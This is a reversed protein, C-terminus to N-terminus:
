EHQAGAKEPRSRTPGTSYNADIHPRGVIESARDANVRQELRGIPRTNAAGADRECGTRARCPMGMGETLSQDDCGAPPPRLDPTARDLSDVGGVDDPKGPALLVPCMTRFPLCRADPKDPFTKADCSM